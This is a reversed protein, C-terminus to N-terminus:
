IKRQLEAIQRKMDEANKSAVDDAEKKVPELQKIVVQHSASEVSLPKHEEKVMPAAASAVSSVLEAHKEVSSQRSGVMDTDAKVAPM